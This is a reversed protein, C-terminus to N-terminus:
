TFSSLINVFDNKRTKAASSKVARTIYTSIDVTVSYAVAIPEEAITAPRTEPM